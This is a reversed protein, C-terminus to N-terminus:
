ERNGGAKQMRAFVSIKRKARGDTASKRLEDLQAVTVDLYFTGRRGSTELFLIGFNEWAAGNGNRNPRNAVKMKMGVKKADSSM